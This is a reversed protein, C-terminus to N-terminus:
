FLMEGPAESIQRCIYYKFIKKNGKDRVYIATLKNDKPRKGSIKLIESEDYRRHGGETRESKIKGAKDWDRVTQVTVGLAKAAEGLKYYM